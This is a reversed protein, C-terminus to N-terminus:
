RTLFKICVPRSLGTMEGTKELTGSKKDIRFTVITDTDQNAAHLFNGSPDIAFNRPNKGGTPEHGVLILKGDAGIAYIVISDDGRNSGYVFRGDPSVHIDATHSTGAFDKPLSPVSQMETLLGSVADCQYATITNGIENILYAFKGNPHFDFHRPGEGPSVAITHALSLTGTELHLEYVLVTDMGLDAVYAFRNQADLNISHAHPEKQRRENVSSGHHQIFDSAEGLSGDEGIPLVCVSGGGYNAVLAYQGTADICLHCPGPGGVSRCNLPTIGGTASIALATISGVKEGNFESIENIAYLFHGSPHLAVFSPNNLKATGLRSLTGTGTQYDCVYIGESGDRTYTGVFALTKSM